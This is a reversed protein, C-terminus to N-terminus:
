APKNSCRLHHFFEVKFVKYFSLDCYLLENINIFHHFPPLLFLWIAQAQSYIYTAHTCTMFLIHLPRWKRQTSLQNQENAQQERNHRHSCLHLKLYIQMRFELNVKNTFWWNVQQVSHFKRRVLSVLLWTLLYQINILFTNFLHCFCFLM